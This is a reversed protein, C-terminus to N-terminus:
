VTKVSTNIRHPMGKEAEFSSAHRGHKGKTCLSDGAM